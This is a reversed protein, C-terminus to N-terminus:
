ALEEAASHRELEARLRRKAYFVRTKVTAVSCGVVDAIEAQSCAFGFMLTLVTRHELSLAALAADLALRDDIRAFDDTERNPGFGADIVSLSAGLRVARRRADLAKHHAIGLVWTIVRSRGAFTRAGNWVAILADSTIEEALECAPVIDRVFALVGNVYAHYFEEFATRDGTAIREILQRDAEDEAPTRRELM